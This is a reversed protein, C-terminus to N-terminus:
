IRLSVANVINAIDKTRRFTKRLDGGLERYKKLDVVIVMEVYRSKANSNYPVRTDDHDRLGRKAKLLVINIKLMLIEYIFLV